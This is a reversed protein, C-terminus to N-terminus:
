SQISKSEAKQPRGNRRKYVVIGGKAPTAAFLTMTESMAMTTGRYLMAVEGAVAGIVMRTGGFVSSAVGAIEPLPELDFDTRPFFRDGTLYKEGRENVIVLPPGSRKALADM